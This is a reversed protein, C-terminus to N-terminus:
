KLLFFFFFPQPVNSYLSECKRELQPIFLFETQRKNLNSKDTMRDFAPM